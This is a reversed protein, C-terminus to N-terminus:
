SRIKLKLITIFAFILFYFTFGSIKKNKKEISSVCIFISCFCLFCLCPFLRPILWMKVNAGIGGSFLINTDKKKEAKFTKNEKGKKTGKKQPFFNVGELFFFLYKKLKCTQGQVRLIVSVM